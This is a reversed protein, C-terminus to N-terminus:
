QLFSAMQMYVLKCSNTRVYTARSVEFTKRVCRLLFHLPIKREHRLANGPLWVTLQGCVTSPFWESLSVCYLPIGVEGSHDIYANVECYSKWTSHTDHEQAHVMFCQSATVTVLAWCPATILHGCACIYMCTIVTAIVQTATVCYHCLIREVESCCLMTM